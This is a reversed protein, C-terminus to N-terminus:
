FQPSSPRNGYSTVEWVCQSQFYGVDVRAGWWDEEKEDNSELRSNLSVYTYAGEIRARRPVAAGKHLATKEQISVGGNLDM